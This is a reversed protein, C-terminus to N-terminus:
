HRTWSPPSIESPDGLCQTNREVFLTTMNYITSMQKQRLASVVGDLQGYPSTPAARIIALEATSNTYPGSPIYSSRDRTGLANIIQHLPTTHIRHARKDQLSLFSHYHILEQEPPTYTPAHDTREDHAWNYDTDKSQLSLGFLIDRAQMTALTHLEHQGNPTTFHACFSAYSSTNVNAGCCCPFNHATLSELRRDDIFKWILLDAHRYTAHYAVMRTYAHLRSPTDPTTLSPHLDSSHASWTLIHTPHEPHSPSTDNAFPRITAGHDTALPAAFLLSHDLHNNVYFLLALSPDNFEIGFGGHTDKINTTLNAKTIGTITHDLLTQVGARTLSTHVTITTVAGSLQTGHGTVGQLHSSFTDWIQPLLLWSLIHPGPHAL